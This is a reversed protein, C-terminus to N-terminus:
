GCFVTYLLQPNGEVTAGHGVQIESGSAQDNHVRKVKWDLSLFPHSSFELKDLKKWKTVPAEHHKLTKTKKPLHTQKPWFIRHCYCGMQQIFRPQFMGHSCLARSPYHFFFRCYFQRVASKTGWTGVVDSLMSSAPTYSASLRKITLTLQVWPNFKQNISTECTQSIPICWYLMDHHHLNHGLHRTIVLYIYTHM